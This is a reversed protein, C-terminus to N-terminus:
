TAKVDNRDIAAQDNDKQKEDKGREERRSKRPQSPTDKPPRGGARATRGSDKGRRRPM